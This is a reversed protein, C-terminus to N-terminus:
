APTERRFPLNVTFNEGHLGPYAGRGAAPAEEHAILWKNEAWLLRGDGVASREAKLPQNTGRPLIVICRFGDDSVQCPCFHLTTAYIELATNRPVYFATIRGPPLEDGEMDMQSALLLVFDGAAINFESSRHYELCNLRSNWGWCMGIQCPTQGFLANQAAALEAPTELEPMDTLYKTGNEPMPVRLAQAILKGGDFDVVRGFRRFRADWVPYFALRPNKERLLTLVDSM